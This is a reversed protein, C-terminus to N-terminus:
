MAGHGTLVVKLTRALIVLDGALTWNEVYRKDCQVYDAYSTSSRGSVQWLGTIGPRVRLRQRVEPTWGEFESLLGPRPGVMSMDGKLVNWLQPLEDISLRRLVRGARTIRPDRRLKFLPGDAENLDLLELLRHEADPVMTRLKLMTFARGGLGARLQRFIWPRGTDAWVAVMSVVMVPSTLVLLALALSVDLTRKAIARWGDRRTRSLCVAAHEGVQTVGLRRAAIGEFWTVAEAEVGLDAVARMVLDVLPGPHDPPIVLVRDVELERIKGVVAAVVSWGGVPATPNTEVVGVVRVGDRRDADLDARMRTVAPGDGVLLLGSLLQGRRHCERLVLRLLERAGIAAAAGSGLLVLVFGPRQHADVFSVALTEVAAAMLAAHFSRIWTLRRSQLVPRRYLGSAGMGVLAAVMWAGVAPGAPAPLWDRSVFLLLASIAGLAGLDTAFLVGRLRHHGTAPARGLTAGRLATLELDSIVSDVSPQRGARASGAPHDVGTMPPEVPRLGRAEAVEAQHFDLAVASTGSVPSGRDDDLGPAAPSEVEAGNVWSASATAVRTRGRRRPWPRESPAPADVGLEADAPRPGAPSAVVGHDHARLFVSGDAHARDGVQGDAARASQQARLETAVTRLLREVDSRRYGVPSRRCMPVEIEEPTM